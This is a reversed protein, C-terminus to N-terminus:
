ARQKLRQSRWEEDSMAREAKATNGRGGVPELPKPANSPQAPTKALETVLKEIRRGLKAGTLGQLSEVADPNQALHLLLEASVGTDLVEEIFETPRGREDVFPLDDAVDLVVERFKPNLKKGADLMASTRESVKEARRLDAAMQRASTEVDVTPERRTSRPAPDADDHDDDAPDNRTASRSRLESELRAILADKQAITADKEGLARTRTGIRRELKRILKDRDGHAADDGGGQPDGTEDDNAAPTGGDGAAAPQSDTVIPAAANPDTAWLVLGLRSMYSLLLRALRERMPQDM